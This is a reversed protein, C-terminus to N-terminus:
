KVEARGTRGSENKVRERVFKECEWLLKAKQFWDQERSRRKYDNASKYVLGKERAGDQSRAARGIIRGTTTDGVSTIQEIDKWNTTKNKTM